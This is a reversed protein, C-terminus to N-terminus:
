YKLLDLVYLTPGYNNPGVGSDGNYYLYYSWLEKRSTTPQEFADESVGLLREYQPLTGEPEPLNIGSLEAVQEIGKSNSAQGDTTLKPATSSKPMDSDLGGDLPDLNNDNVM